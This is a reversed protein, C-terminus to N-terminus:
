DRYATITLRSGVWDNLKALVYGAAAMMAAGLGVSLLVRAPEASSAFIWQHGALVGTLIAVLPIGYIWATARLITGHRMELRVTDGAELADPSAAHVMSGTGYCSEKIVCRDCTGAITIEVGYIPRGTVTDDAPVERVIGYETDVTDHGEGNM